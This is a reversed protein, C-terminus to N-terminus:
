SSITALIKQTIDNISSGSVAAASFILNGNKLNVCRIWAKKRNKNFGIILLYDIKGPAAKNIAAFTTRATREDNFAYKQFIKREEKIDEFYTKGSWTGHYLKIANRDYIKRWSAVDSSIYYFKDIDDKDINNYITNGQFSNLKHGQNMIEYYLTNLDEGGINTLVALRSNQQLNEGKYIMAPDTINKVQMSLRDILRFIEVELFGVDTFTFISSSSVKYVNIVIKIQNGQQPEFSGYVFYEAKIYSSIKLLDKEAYNNLQKKILIEEIEKPKITNIRFQTDLSSALATPLISELYNFDSKTSTNVFNGVAISGAGQLAATDLALVNSGYVPSDGQLVTISLISIIILLALNVPKVKKM